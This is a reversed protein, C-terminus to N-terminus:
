SQRPLRLLISESGVQMPIDRAERSAEVPKRDTVPPSYLPDYYLFALIEEFLILFCFLESLRM